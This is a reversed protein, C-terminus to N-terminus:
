YVGNCINSEGAAIETQNKVNFAVCLNICDNLSATRQNVVNPGSWHFAANCIKRFQYNTSGLANYITNNSSPCDRYLTQSPGIETTTSLTVSTATATTTTPTTSSSSSSSSSSNNAGKAEDGGKSKAAQTGGVVGGVVAAAIVLVAGCVLLWFRRYPLGCIRPPPKAPSAFKYAEQSHNRIEYHIKEASPAVEPLSQDPVVELNSYPLSM